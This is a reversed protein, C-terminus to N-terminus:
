LYKPLDIDMHLFLKLRVNKWTMDIAQEAM